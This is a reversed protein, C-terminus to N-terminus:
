RRVASSRAECSGQLYIAVIGRIICRLSLNGKSKKASVGALALCKSWGEGVEGFQAYALGSHRALYALMKRQVRRPTPNVQCTEPEAQQIPFNSACAAEVVSHLGCAAQVTACTCAALEAPRPQRAQAKGPLLM